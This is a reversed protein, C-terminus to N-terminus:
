LHGGTDSSGTQVSSQWWLDDCDRHNTQVMILLLLKIVTMWSTLAAHIVLVMSYQVPCQHRLVAQPKVTQENAILVNSSMSFFPIYSRTQIFCSLCVVSSSIVWRSRYHCSPFTVDLRSAPPPVSLFILLWTLVMFAGGVESLLHCAPPPTLRIIPPNKDLSIIKCDITMLPSDLSM